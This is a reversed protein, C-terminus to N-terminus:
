FVIQRYFITSATPPGIVKPLLIRKNISPSSPHSCTIVSTVSYRKSSGLVMVNGVLSICAQIALLIIAMDKNEETLKNVQKVLEQNDQKMAKNEQKVEKLEIEVVNVQNTLKEVKEIVNILRDNVSLSNCGTINFLFSVTIFVRLWPSGM